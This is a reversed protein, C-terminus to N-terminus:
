WGKLQFWVGVLQGVLGAGALALGYQILKKSKTLEAQRRNINDILQGLVGGDVFIGPEDGGDADAVILRNGLSRTKTMSKNEIIASTNAGALEKALLIFGLIEVAIGALSIWNNWM